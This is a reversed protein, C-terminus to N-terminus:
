SPKSTTAAAKFAILPFGIFTSTNETVWPPFRLMENMDCVDPNIASKSIPVSFKRHIPSALNTKPNMLSHLDEKQIGDLM